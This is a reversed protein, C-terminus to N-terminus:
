LSELYTELNQLDDAGLQATNGHKSGGCAPNTLRDMLTAACGDHMYPARDIVDLLAPVQTPAAQGLVDTKGIDQNTALAGTGGVHCASCGGPGDFIAKGAAVRTADLDTRAPIRPIANLWAALISEQAPEVKGGGMRHTFVEDCLAGLNALDGSWHYPATDTVVGGRLSQTRRAQVDGGVKFKWTHGDDGGEPHCTMCASGVITPIHFIDFGTDAHSQKQPLTVTAIPSQFSAGFVLLAATPIRRQVVEYPVDVRSGDDIGIYEHQNDM